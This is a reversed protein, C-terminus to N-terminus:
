AWAAPNGYSSWGLAEELYATDLGFDAYGEKICNYYQQSPMDVRDRYKRTMRYTMMGFLKVQDYLHPRGEYADLSKECEETISWIGVPLLDMEDGEEIDAVGRFVLRWGVLYAAGLPKARPCRYKMQGKNLNSGYAFYLRRPKKTM